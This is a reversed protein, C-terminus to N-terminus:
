DPRRRLPFWRAGAATDRQRTSQGARAARVSALRVRSTLWHYLQAPVHILTALYAVLVVGVVLVTTPTHMANAPSPVFMAVADYLVAVVPWAFYLSGTGFVGAWFWLDTHDEDPRQRQRIVFRIDCAVAAAFLMLFWCADLTDM